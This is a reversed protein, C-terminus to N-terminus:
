KEQRESLEAWREFASELSSAVHTLEASLSQLALYDSGSGNIQQQLRAQEVEWAAIETELRALEQKEKWSLKKDAATPRSRPATQGNAGPQSPAPLRHHRTSPNHHRSRRAGPGDPCSTCALARLSTARASASALPHFASRASCRSTSRAM